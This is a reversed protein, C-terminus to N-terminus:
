PIEWLNMAAEVGTRNSSPTGPEQGPSNETARQTYTTLLVCESKNGAVDTAQGHIQSTRGSVVSATVGDSGFTAGSALMSIASSCIANDYLIVSADAETIGKVKPSQNDSPSAPSIGSFTVTPRQTDIVLAVAASASSENGAADKAKATINHSGAGLASAYSWAGTTANATVSGPLESGSKYVTVTSGAEATGTIVPSTTNLTITSGVTVPKSGATSIAPAGPATTDVNITFNYPSANTSNGAADTATLCVHYTGNVLTGLPQSTGTLLAPPNPFTAVIGSACGAVTAVKLVYTVASSDVPAGWVIIPAAPNAPNVHRTIAFAEPVVNDIMIDVAVSLSSENGAADKAKATITHRGAVLASAYSWAGTTANATVSGLIESGSKYVTVTSGLEATGTIVPSTSNLLLLSSGATVPKSGVTSIAPAGPATTDVNITLPVSAISQNGAADKAVATITNTGQSLDIFATAWTGRSDAINSTWVPSAGNYITVTSRVETTGQLVINRFNHTVTSGAPVMSQRQIDQGFHTILPASPAVTDYTYTAVRERSANGAKDCAIVAISTGPSTAPISISDGATGTSCTPAAPVTLSTATVYRFEKFHPEVPNRGETVVVSFPANFTVVYPGLQPFDPPTTDREYIATTAPSANGAKDCAIVAISMPYIESPVPISSGVFGTSCTPADPASLNRNTTFRFEKFDPEPPTPNETVSVSFSVGNIFGSARSLIPAGPATADYKYTATTASSANGATDCAIVSISTGPSTAPIDILAGETPRTVFGTSCTPAAPATLSNATVYRFEKFYPESPTANKTVTVTFGANIFTSAQSLNPAGPATTDILLDVAASASSENGAADKAKATINHSGAGLASAYSWAGTTANATVSGLIESGSKYVTVTSGSEATGTIVPSTTNLTITSGATVPKSGVTSIAPAVPATIDITVSASCASSEGYFNNKKSKAKFSYVGDPLDSIRHPSSDFSIQTETASGTCDRSSFRSVVLYDAGPSVTWTLQVQNRPALDLISVIPTSPVPIPKIEFVVKKEQDPDTQSATIQYFGPSTPLFSYDTQLTNPQTANPELTIPPLQSWDATGTDARKSTVTTTRTRDGGGVRFNITPGIFSPSASVMTIVLPAIRIARISARQFFYDSPFASSGVYGQGFEFSSGGRFKFTGTFPGRGITGSPKVCYNPECWFGRGYGYLGGEADGGTNGGSYTFQFEEDSSGEVVRVESPSVTLKPLYPFEVIFKNPTGFGFEIKCSVPPDSEPKRFLIKDILVQCTGAKVTGDWGPGRSASLPLALATTGVPVAPRLFGPIIIPDPDVAKNAKAVYSMYFDSPSEFKIRLRMPVNLNYGPSNTGGRIQYTVEEGNSDFPITFTYTEDTSKVPYGGSQGLTVPLSSCRDEDAIRRSKNICDALEYRDTSGAKCEDLTKGDFPNTTISGYTKFDRGGPCNFGIRREISVVSKGALVKLIVQAGSYAQFNGFYEGAQLSGDGIVINVPAPSNDAGSAKPSFFAASFLMLCAVFALYVSTSRANISDGQLGSHNAKM